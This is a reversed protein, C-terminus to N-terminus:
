EQEPESYQCLEILSEIAAVIAKPSKQEIASLLEEAATDKAISDDQEAGNEIPAEEVKEPKNMGSVIVSALKKKDDSLLM